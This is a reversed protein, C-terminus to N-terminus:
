EKGPLYDGIGEVDLICSVGALIWKQPPYKTKLQATFVYTAGRTETKYVPCQYVGKEEKGDPLVPAAKCCVVPVVSFPKRPISEEMQGSAMDWRAGEVHFGFCYAGERPPETIETFMRKTIDTQIYLKNLETGTRQSNLQKIATLFSQPNFLRNLFTIRPIQTPEEKWQNLQLLRHSLNDMWSGLPRISPFALKSWTTPVRNLYISDILKEMSETMTLEGKFALTLLQLSDLIAAILQNMYECEQLFVNQFPGREEDPIKGVIDDIPLKNQDLQYDEYTKTMFEQVKETKGGGEGGELNEDRPQLDQLTMFLKVCQDTRFGIEANPHMGFALPTEGPLTEIHELYKSYPLVPPCRFSIGKGEAFPFLEAEDLLQDNMINTLYANCLIRDWDDVIHGGYMIEGFIYRLDDWPIKGAGAATEMYNNLVLASDRLDGMNFPYHMNWGKAGFKRREIMVSHFYCLAFLITKIKSEREEFEDPLFFTFARNMNAKLGAPPENTLKISRELIGIPIGSSPEASLFLRFAPNSGELAFEDLKKELELLWRPMLHINQLMVWHGEKHATELKQMAVVDQGEGLAVNWFNKNAEYGNKRGLIEVDKVPDAGPSLIFFIPTSPSSDQLSSNLIQAFSSTSDMDVYKEGNPLMERIFNDMASTIRDPRLCRIVLLKQFPMSELKKWDLPLKMTEPTLESYWDKFRQPADRELNASFNEFGEIEILKQISFWATDPLWEKLPNPVNQNLPCKVLFEVQKQDYELKPLAGKQMLRFTILTLFIQKHRVFLGRSVWQYITERIMEQLAKVRPEEDAFQETKDIAKFFFTTFSELSYQYMHDVICLQILLFYLM